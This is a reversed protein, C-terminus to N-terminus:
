FCFMDRSYSHPSQGIWGTVAAHVYLKLCRDKRVRTCIEPCHGVTTFREEDPPIIHFSTVDHGVTLLGSDYKRLHPTLHVELGSSDVVNGHLGPNDYHVKCIFYLAKTDRQHYPLFFDLTIHM